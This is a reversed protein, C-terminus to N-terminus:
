EPYLDYSVTSYFTKKEEDELIATRKTTYTKVLEPKCVATTTYVMINKNERNEVDLRQLKINESYDVLLIGDSAKDIEKKLLIKNDLTIELEKKNVDIILLHTTQDNLEIKRIIREFNKGFNYSIEVTNKKDDIIITYLNNDIDNFSLIISGNKEPDIYVLKIRYNQWEIKRSEFLDIIIEKQEDITIDNEQETMNTENLLKINPLAAYKIEQNANPINYKILIPQKNNKITLSQISTKSDWLNIFPKKEAPNKIIFTKNLPYNDFFIEAKDNNAIIKLRHVQTKKSKESANITENNITIQNTEKNYQIGYGKEIGLEIKNGKYLRFVFDMTYGNFDFSTNTIYYTFNKQEENTAYLQITRETKKEELQAIKYEQDAFVLNINQKKGERNLLINSFEAYTNTTEFTFFGQSYDDISNNFITKNDITLILTGYSAYINVNHLTGKEISILEERYVSKNIDYSRSFYAVQKDENIIFAYKENGEIDNFKTVIQGIGDRVIYNFTLSYEKEKIFLKPNQTKSTRTIVSSEKEVFKSYGSINTEELYLNPRECSYNFKYLERTITYNYQTQKKEHNAISFSYNYQKTPIIYKPLTKHNNFYLETFTEPKPRAIILTLIVILIGIVLAIIIANYISEDENMRS